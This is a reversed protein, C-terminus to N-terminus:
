VFLKLGLASLDCFQLYQSIGGMVARSGNWPTGEALLSLVNVRVCPAKSLWRRLDRVILDGTLSWM